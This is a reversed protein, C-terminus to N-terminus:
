GLFDASSFQQIVYSNKHDTFISYKINASGPRTSAIVLVGQGVSTGNEYNNNVFTSHTINAAIGQIFVGGGGGTGNTGPTGM